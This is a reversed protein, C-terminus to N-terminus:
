AVQKATFPNCGIKLEYVFDGRCLPDRGCDMAELFGAVQKAGLSKGCIKIIPPLCASCLPDRPFNLAESFDAVQKACLPDCSKQFKPNPGRLYVRALAEYYRFADLAPRGTYNAVQKACLPDCSERGTGSTKAVHRQSRPPRQDFKISCGLM